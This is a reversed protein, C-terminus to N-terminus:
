SMKDKTIVKKMRMSPSMPTQPLRTKPLKEQPIKTIQIKFHPTVTKDLGETQPKLVNQDVTNLLFSINKGTNRNKTM